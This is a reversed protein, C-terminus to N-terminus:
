RIKKLDLVKDINFFIYVNYFIGFYPKNKVKITICFYTFPMTKKLQEIITKLQTLYFYYAKMLYISFKHIRESMLMIYPFEVQVIYM